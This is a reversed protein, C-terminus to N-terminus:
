QRSTDMGGTIRRIAGSTRWFEQGVNAIVAKASSVQSKNTNDDAPRMCLRTICHSHWGGECNMLHKAELTLSKSAVRPLPSPIEFARFVLKKRTITCHLDSTRKPDVIGLPFRWGPDSSETSSHERHRLRKRSKRTSIATMLPHESSFAATSPVTRAPCSGLRQPILQVPGRNYRALLNEKNVPRSKMRTSNM